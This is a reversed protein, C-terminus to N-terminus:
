KELTADSVNWQQAFYGHEGVYTPIIRGGLIRRPREFVQAVPNAIYCMRELTQRSRHSRFPTFHGNGGGRILRREGGVDVIIIRGGLIRRPREFVQAVPNAIYCM